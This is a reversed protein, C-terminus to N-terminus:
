LIQFPKNSITIHSLLCFSNHDRTKTGPFAMLLAICCANGIVIITSCTHFIAWMFGWPNMRVSHLWRDQNKLGALLLYFTIFHQQYSHPPHLLPHLPPYHPYHPYHDLSSLKKLAICPIKIHNKHPPLQKIWDHNHNPSHIDHLESITEIGYMEM